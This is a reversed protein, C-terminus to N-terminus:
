NFSLDTPRDMARALAAITTNAAHEVPPPPDVAGEAPDVAGDAAADDAADPPDAAAPPM